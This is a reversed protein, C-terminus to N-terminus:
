VYIMVEDKYNEDGITCSFGFSATRESPNYNVLEVTADDVGEVNIIEQRIIQKINDMEPNKVFISEFWQLGLEPGLRWENYIWKLRIKIAQTINDTLAIDGNESVEIDGKSNLFIDVM